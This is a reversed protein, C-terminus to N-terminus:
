QLIGVSGNGVVASKFQTRGREDLLWRGEDQEDDAVLADVMFAEADM